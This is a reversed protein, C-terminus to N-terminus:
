ADADGSDLLDEPDARVVVLLKVVCRELTVDIEVRELGSHV